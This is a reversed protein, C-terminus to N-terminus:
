SHVVENQIFEIRSWHCDCILFNDKITFGSIDFGKLIDIKANVKFYLQRFHYDELKSELTKYGIKLIEEIIKNIPECAPCKDIIIKM